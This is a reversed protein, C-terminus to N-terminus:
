VAVEEDSDSVIEIEVNRVVDVYNYQVNSVGLVEALQKCIETFTPRDNPDIHWCSAM